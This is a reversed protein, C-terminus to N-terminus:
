AHVHIPNKRRPAAPSACLFDSISIAFLYQYFYFCFANTVIIRSCCICLHCCSINSIRPWIGNGERWLPHSPSLTLPSLPPQTGSSPSRRRGGTSKTRGRGAQRGWPLSDWGVARRGGIERRPPVREGTGAARRAPPTGRVTARSPLNQVAAKAAEVPVRGPSGGPASCAARRCSRRGRSAASARDQLPSAPIPPSMGRARSMAYSPLATAGGM